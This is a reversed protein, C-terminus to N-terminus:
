ARASAAPAVPARSRIAAKAAFYGLDPRKACLNVRALSKMPKVGGKRLKKKACKRGAAVGLGGAHRLRAAVGPDPLEREPAVVALRPRLGNRKPRRSAWFCRFRFSDKALRFSLSERRQDYTMSIMPPVFDLIEDYQKNEIPQGGKQKARTAHAREIWFLRLDLAPPPDGKSLSLAGRRPRKAAGCASM